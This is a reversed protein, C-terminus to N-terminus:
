SYNNPRPRVSQRDRSVQPRRLNRKLYKSFSKLAPADIHRGAHNELRLRESRIQPIRLSTERQLVKRRFSLNRVHMASPRETKRGKQLVGLPKSAAGHTFWIGGLNLSDAVLMAFKRKFNGTLGRDLRPANHERSPVHGEAVDRRFKGTQGLGQTQM